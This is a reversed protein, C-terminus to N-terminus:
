YELGRMEYLYYRLFVPSITRSIHAENKYIKKEM